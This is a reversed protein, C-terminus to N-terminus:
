AAWRREVGVEIGVVTCVGSAGDTGDVVGVVDKGVVNGVVGTRVETCVVTGAV